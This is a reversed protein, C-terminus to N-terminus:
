EMGVEIRVRKALAKSGLAEAGRLAADLRQGRRSTGAPLDRGLRWTALAEDYPMRLERAREESRTWSAVARSRNGRLREFTGAHLAARPGAAPFVRAFARMASCAAKARGQLDGESLPVKRAREWLSLYVDCAISYAEFCYFAVPPGALVQQLTKSAADYAVDFDGRELATAALLAFVWMRETRQLEPLLGEAERALANAQGVEGLAALAQGRVLVRWAHAQPDGRRSAM